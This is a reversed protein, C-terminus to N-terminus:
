SWAMEIKVNGQQFNILVTGGIAGDEGPYIEFLNTGDTQTKPTLEKLRKSNRIWQQLEPESLNFELFFTRTFMGGSTKVKLDNAQEPLEALGGWLLTTEIANSREWPMLTNTFYPVIVLGIFLFIVAAIGILIRLIIKKM